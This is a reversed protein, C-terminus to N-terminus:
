SAPSDVPVGCVACATAYRRRFGAVRTAKRDVARFVVDTEGQVAIVLPPRPWPPDKGKWAFALTEHGSPCRVVGTIAYGPYDAM